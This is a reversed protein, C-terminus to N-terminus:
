FTGPDRVITANRPNGLLCSGRGQDILKELRLYRDRSNVSAAAAKEYIARPLRDGLRFTIMQAIARGDFHPLYGRERWGGRPRSARAGVRNGKRPKVGGM